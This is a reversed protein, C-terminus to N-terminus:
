KTEMTLRSYPCCVNKLWRLFPDQLLAGIVFVTLQIAFIADLKRYKSENLMVVGVGGKYKVLGEVMTLMMWGMTANQRLVDFMQDLRGLIVVEFIARTRSMRLSRTQDFEAQTASDVVDVMSTLFFPAVGFVLLAVELAYGGGFIRTFIIVFGAMSFFRFKTLILVIPRIVDIVSLYALGVALLTSLAMATINLQLSTWLEYLLGEETVLKLWADPIEGLSPLSYGSGLSWLGLLIAVWVATAVMSRTIPKPPPPPPPPPAGEKQAARAVTAAVAGGGGSVVALGM